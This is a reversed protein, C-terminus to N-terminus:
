SIKRFSFIPFSNNVPLFFFQGRKQLPRVPDLRLKELAGGNEGTPFRPFRRKELPQVINNEVLIVADNRKIKFYSFGFSPYNAM